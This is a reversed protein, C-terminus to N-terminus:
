APAVSTAEAADLRPVHVQAREHERSLVLQPRAQISHRRVARPEDNAPILLGGPAGAQGGRPGHALARDGDGAEQGLRARRLECEIDLLVEAIAIYPDTM